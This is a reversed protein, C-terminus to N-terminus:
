DHEGGERVLTLKRKLRCQPCRKPVSLGKSLFYRQEGVSFTFDAGCDVCRITKNKLNLNISEMMGAM